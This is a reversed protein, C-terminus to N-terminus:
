NVNKTDESGRIIWAQCCDGWLQFEGIDTARMMLALECARDFLAICYHAFFRGICDIDLPGWCVDRYLTVGCVRFLACSRDNTWTRLASSKKSKNLHEFNIVWKYGVGVGLWVITPLNLSAVFSLWTVWNGPTTLIVSSCFFRFLIPGSKKDLVLRSMKLHM